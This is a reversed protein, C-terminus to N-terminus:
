RYKLKYYLLGLYEHVAKNTMELYLPQPFFDWIRFHPTCLKYNYHAPYPIVKSFGEKKFLYLSRKLHYASTILLLPTDPSFRKKLAKVSSITDYVNEVVLVRGKVGLEEAVEKYYSAEKHDKAKFNGGIILLPKEPYKKKLEIAKLLRLLADRPLREEPSMGSVDYAGGTFLLFAKAKKVESDSPVSFPKELTKLM